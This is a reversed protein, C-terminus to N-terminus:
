APRKFLIQLVLKVAENHGLREAAKIRDADERSIRFRNTCVGARTADTVVNFLTPKAPM